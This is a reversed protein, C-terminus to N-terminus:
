KIEYVTVEFNDGNSIYYKVVLVLEEYGGSIIDSVKFYLDNLNNIILSDNRNAKDFVVKYHGTKEYDNLSGIISNGLQDKLEFQTTTAIQFKSLLLEDDKILGKNELLSKLDNSRVEISYPNSKLLKKLEDESMKLHGQYSIRFLMEGIKNISKKNGTDSKPIDTNIQNGKEACSFLIAAVFFLFANRKFLPVM